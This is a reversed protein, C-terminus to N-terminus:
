ARCKGLVGSDESHARLRKQVQKVKCQKAKSEVLAQLLTSPVGPPFDLRPGM